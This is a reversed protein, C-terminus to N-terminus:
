TFFFILRHYQNFIAKKSVFVCDGRGAGLICEGDKHGNELPGMRYFAKRKREPLRESQNNGLLSSGGQLFPLSQTDYKLATRRIVEARLASM